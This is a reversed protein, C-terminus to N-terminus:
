WDHSNTKLQVQCVLTEKAERQSQQHCAPEQPDRFVLIVEREKLVVGAPCEMEALSDLNVQLSCDPIKLLIFM